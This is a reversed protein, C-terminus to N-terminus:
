AAEPEHAFIDEKIRIKHNVQSNEIQRQKKTRHRARVQAKENETSKGDAHYQTAAADGRTETLVDSPLM